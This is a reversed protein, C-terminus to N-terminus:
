ASPDRAPVRVGRTLFYAAWGGGITGIGVCAVTEVDHLNPYNSM